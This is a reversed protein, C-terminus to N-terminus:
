AKRENVDGYGYGKVFIIQGDKVVAVMAGPIHHAKLLANVAEDMFTELEKPDTPGSISVNSSNLPLSIACQYM